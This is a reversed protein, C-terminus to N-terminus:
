GTVLGVATVEMPFMGFPVCCDGILMTRDASEAAEDEPSQSRISLGNCGILVGSWILL